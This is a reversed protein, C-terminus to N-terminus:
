PHLRQLGSLTHHCRTDDPLLSICVEMDKKARAWDKALQHKVCWGDFTLYLNNLCADNTRCSEIHKRVVAVSKEYEGHEALDTMEDLLVGTFGDRLDKADEWSPDVHDLADDAIAVGDDGRGTVLLAHANHWALWAVGRMIKPNRPYQTAADSVPSAIVEVMHLLTRFAKQDHLKKAENEYSIIRDEVSGADDPALTAAAEYLRGQTDDNMIRKDNMARAVLVYPALVQRKQYDDLTMPELGRDSSWKKAADAYYKADHVKGFGEPYTTEVDIRENSGDPDLEVFAHTKTMVGRVPLSFARSLSTYLLASSICNYHGGDFISALRAQDLEYAGIEPDKPNAAGTFFFKHMARNLLDGRAKEDPAGEISPRESELFADFRRTIREYGAADRVTGSGLIAFALLAHADGQRAKDANQLTAVEADTLPWWAHLADNGYGPRLKAPDEHSDQSTPPRWEGPGCAALVLITALARGLRM